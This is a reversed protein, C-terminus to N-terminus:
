FPTTPPMPKEGSHCFSVLGLYHTVLMARKLSELFIAYLHRFGEGTKFLESSVRRPGLSSHSNLRLHCLLLERVKEKTYFASPGATTSM